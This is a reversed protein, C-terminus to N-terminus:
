LRLRSTRRRLRSREKGLYLSSILIIFRSEQIGDRIQAERRFFQYLLM